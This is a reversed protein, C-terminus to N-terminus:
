NRHKSYLKKIMSYRKFIEEVYGLVVVAFMNSPVLYGYRCTDDSPRFGSWTMGTFATKAGRGDNILTDEKRTTDRVFTYPSHEHDQETKFM